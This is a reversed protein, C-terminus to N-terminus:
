LGLSARLCDDVERMVAPSLRGIRALILSQDYTLLTQCEIVSDKRLGSGAHEPSGFRILKQTPSGVYQRVGSTVFAVITDDLRANWYDDQVVVSPRKKRGTQDSYPFDIVVVDGRQVQKV